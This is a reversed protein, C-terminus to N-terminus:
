CFTLLDPTTSTGAGQMLEGLLQGARGRLLGLGVPYSSNAVRQRSRASSGALRLAADVGTTGFGLSADIARTREMHAATRRLHEADTTFVREVRVRAGVYGASGNFWSVLAPSTPDLLSARRGGVGDRQEMWRDELLALTRGARLCNEDDFTEAAALLVMAIGTVGHAFGPRRLAPPWNDFPSALIEQAGARCIARARRHAEPADSLAAISLAAAATGAWGDALDLRTGHERENAVGVMWRVSRQVLNPEDLLTGIWASAWAVGPQGDDFTPDDGVASIEPLGDLALRAYREDDGVVAALALALAIGAAGDFLGPLTASMERYASLGGLRDTPWQVRQGNRVAHEALYEALDCPLGRFSWPRRGGYEPEEGEGFLTGSQRRKHGSAATWGDQALRLEIDHCWARIVAGDGALELRRRIGDTATRRLGTVVVTEESPGLAILTGGRVAILPVDGGSLAAAEAEILRTVGGPGLVRALEDPLAPAADAWRASGMQKMHSVYVGTPRVLVRLPMDELDGHIIQDPELRGAIEIASRYGRVFDIPDAVPTDHALNGLHLGSRDTATATYWGLTRPLVGIAMPGDSLILDPATAVLPQGICELDIPIMTEAHNVFNETHVDTVGLVHMTAVVAGTRRWFGETSPIASAEVKSMWGHDGLDVVRYPPPATRWSEDLASLVDSFWREPQLSRPKLFWSTGDDFVVEAVQRRGRHPDSLGRRIDRVDAATKGVEPIGRDVRAVLEREAANAAEDITM